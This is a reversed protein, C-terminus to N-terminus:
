AAKVKCRILVTQKEGRYESHEKVRGKLIVEAGTEFGIDWVSTTKWILKDGSETRFEWVYVTETGFGSFAKREFTFRNKFVAKVEIPCGEEGVYQSIAKRAEEAKIRADREAKIREFEADRAAQAKALKEARKADLKAQYEPTREIWKGIVKGSGGCKYCVGSFQPKIEGNGLIMMAGWWYQGRGQCRDCECEGEYHKSGNRDIKILKAM